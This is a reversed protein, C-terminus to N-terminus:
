LYNFGVKLAAVAAQSARLPCDGRHHPSAVIIKNLIYLFVLLGPIEVVIRTTCKRDVIRFVVAAM